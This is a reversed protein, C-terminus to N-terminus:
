RTSDLEHALVKNLLDNAEKINGENMYEQALELLERKTPIGGNGVIEIAKPVDIFDVGGGSQGNEKIAEAIDSLLINKLNELQEILEDHSMISQNILTDLRKHYTQHTM